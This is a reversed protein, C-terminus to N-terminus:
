LFSGFWQEFDEQSEGVYSEYRQPDWMEIVDGAGVFLVEKGIGAAEVLHPPVSIRGQADLGAEATNRM